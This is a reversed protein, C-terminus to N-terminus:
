ATDKSHRNTIPAPGITGKAAGGFLLQDLVWVDAPHDVLDSIGARIQAYAAGDAHGQLDAPSAWKEVVFVTKGDTHLSFLECGPEQYVLPVIGAYIDIVEQLRGPKPYVRAVVIKTSDAM